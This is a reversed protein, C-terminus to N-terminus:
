EKNKSKLYRIYDVVDEQQEPSLTAILSTLSQRIDATMEPDEFGMLWGPSVKLAKALLYVKDQKAEIKGSKYRSINDEGIGTKRSLEAATMGQKEMAYKLRLAFSQM